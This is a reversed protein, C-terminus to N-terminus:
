VTALLLIHLVLTNGSFFAYRYNEDDELVGATVEGFTVDIDGKLMIAGKFSTEADSISTSTSGSDSGSDTDGGEYSDWDFLGSDQAQATGTTLTALLGFAGIITATRTM